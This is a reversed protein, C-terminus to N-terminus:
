INRKGREVSPRGDTSAIHASVEAELESPSPPDNGRVGCPPCPVGLRLTRAQSSFERGAGAEVALGM